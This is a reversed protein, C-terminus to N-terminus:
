RLFAIIIVTYIILRRALSRSYEVFTKWWFDSFPRNNNWAKGFINAIFQDYKELFLKASCKKSFEINQRSFNTTSLSYQLNLVIIITTNKYTVTWCVGNLGVGFQEFSSFANGALDFWKLTILPKLIYVINRLRTDIKSFLHRSMFKPYPFVCSTWSQYTGQM